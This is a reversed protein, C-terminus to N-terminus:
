EKTIIFALFCISMVFLSIICLILLINIGYIDIFLSSIFLLFSSGLFPITNCITIIKLLLDQNKNFKDNVISLITPYIPGLCFGIIGFLVSILAINKNYYIIIICIWSIIIFISISIINLKKIKFFHSIIILVIKGILQNIWYLSIVLSMIKQEGKIYDILYTYFWDGLLLELSLYFILFLSIFLIIPKKFIKM